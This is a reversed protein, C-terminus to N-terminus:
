VLSQPSSGRIGEDAKPAARRIQQANYQAFERISRPPRDALAEAEGTVFELGGKRVVEYLSVVEAITDESQGATRLEAIFESESLEVYSVRRDVAASFSEAVEDFSVNTPGTLIHESDTSTERELLAAAVLAIDFADIAGIRGTGGPVRLEIQANTGRTHLLEFFNQMFYHSRVFSFGLGSQRILSEIATHHRAWTFRADPGADASSLKVIRRVGAGRAASLVNNEFEIQRPHDTTLLFIRECDRAADALSSPQSFDGAVLQADLDTFLLRAREIDRVLARVPIGRDALIPLLCRGVTGTAGTVLVTASM